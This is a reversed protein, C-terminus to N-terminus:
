DTGAVFVNGALFPFGADELAHELADLGYNFEHNGLVAADYGLLNMARIVPHVEAPEVVGYFYDLPNGQLLDGSDVLIVNPQAQRISDVLTAARALGRDEEAGAYYDWPVLRGHVDTTGLLVLELTDSAGTTSRAGDDAAATPRDTSM